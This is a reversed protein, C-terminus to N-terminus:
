NFCTKNFACNFALFFKAPMPTKCLVSHCNLNMSEKFFRKRVQGKLLQYMQVIILAKELAKVHELFYTGGIKNDFLSFSDFYFIKTFDFNGKKTFEYNKFDITYSFDLKQSYVCAYDKNEQPGTIDFESEMLDNITSDNKSSIARLFCYLLNTATSKGTGNKGGIVNIRGMDMDANRISGVNKIKFKFISM